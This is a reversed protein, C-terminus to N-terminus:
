GAAPLRAPLCHCASLSLMECCSCSPLPLHQARPAARLMSRVLWALRVGAGSSASAMSTTGSRGHSAAPLPTACRAAFRALRLLGGLATCLSANAAALRMLLAMRAAAAAATTGGAAGALAPSKGGLRGLRGWGGGAAGLWAGGVQIITLLDRCNALCLEGLHPLGKAEKTRQICDRGCALRPHALIPLSFTPPCLPPPLPDPHLGHPSSASGAAAPQM